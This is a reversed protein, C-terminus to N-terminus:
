LSLYFSDEPHKSKLFILLGDITSKPLKLETGWTEPKGPPETTFFGGAFAPGAPSVPETGSSSLDGPPPFPLGSWHEQRSCEMSVCAEHAVTRPTASSNSVGSCGLLM